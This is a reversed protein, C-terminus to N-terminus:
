RSAGGGGFSGGGGSFGGGSFGGGGHGIYGGGHSDGPRGPTTASHFVFCLIIFPILAFVWFVFFAAVIQLLFPSDNKEVIAEPFKADALTNEQAEESVESVAKLDSPPTIGYEEYVVEATAVWTNIAAENWREEDKAEVAWDDLIRGAKSDNLCGELGEGVEMRVHPEETTFLILVGNDLDADGIGWQNALNLSYTELSDEQTNPVTVTVIQAKTAEQLALAQEMLYEETEQSLVGSYDVVYFNDTPDPYQTITQEMCLWTILITGIISLIGFAKFCGRLYGGKKKKEEPKNETGTDKNM